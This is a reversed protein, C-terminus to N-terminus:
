RWVRVDEERGFESRWRKRGEGDGIDGIRKVFQASGKRERKGDVARGRRAAGEDNFSRYTIWYSFGEKCKKLEM